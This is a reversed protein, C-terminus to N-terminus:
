FYSEYDHGSSGAPGTAADLMRRYENPEATARVEIGSYGLVAAWFADGHGTEDRSTDFTTQNASTWKRHVKLFDSRLVPFPSEEFGEGVIRLLDHAPINIARNSFVMDRRDHAIRVARTQMAVKLKQVWTDKWQRSIRVGCLRARKGVRPAILEFFGAGRTWANSAEGTRDIVLLDPRLTEALALVIDVQGLRGHGGDYPLRSLVYTDRMWLVGDRVDWVQVATNDVVSATDIGLIIRGSGRDVADVSAAWLQADFYRPEGGLFSCEFEQAFQDATYKSRIAAVDVPMGEAVADHVDVKHRSWDGYFQQDTWVEHFHDGQGNPTSVLTIRLDPRSETAAAAARFIERQFQYFAYEDLYLHGTKGRAADPNQTEAIVRYGSRAFQIESASFKTCELFPALSECLRLRRIWEKCKAIIDKAESDRRSVVVCNHAKVGFGALEDVLGSAVLVTELAIVGDSVGIQRGKLIVRYRSSDTLM